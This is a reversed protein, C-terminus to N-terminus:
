KLKKKLVDVILPDYRVLMERKRGKSVKTYLIAFNDVYDQEDPFLSAEISNKIICNLKDHSLKVM